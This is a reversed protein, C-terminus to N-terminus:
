ATLTTARRAPFASALRVGCGRTLRRAASRSGRLISLIIRRFIPESVTRFAVIGLMSGAVLAPVSLLLDCLVKSSLDHHALLLALASVQMAVLFPQVLGRQQNRQQNRPVRHMDCWITPLAGPMATSRGMLGGAFGALANRGQNVVGLGPLSPRFLM